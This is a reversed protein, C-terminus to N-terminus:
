APEKWLAFAAEFAPLTLHHSQLLRVLAPSPTQGSTFRIEGRGRKAGVGVIHGAEALVNAIRRAIAPAPDLWAVPWPALADLKDLLLPYHTCGLVVVDTRTSGEAAFAPAIERTIAEEDVEAGSAHAEALAALTPAGVLTFRAEAGFQRILARTYERAVTAPTALVSVFGSKTLAAAPKVAPVTGVIPISFNDRLTQLAITSATNCALVICDPDFERVGAEILSFLRATLAADSKSGYPFGADDAIYLIDAEPVSSRAASLVTLGGLGSDVFLLRPARSSYSM